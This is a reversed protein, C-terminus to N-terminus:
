QEHFFRQQFYREDLILSYHALAAKKNKELGLIERAQRSEQNIKEQIRSFFKLSLDNKLEELAKYRAEFLQEFTKILDAPEPKIHASANRKIVKEISQLLEKNLAM